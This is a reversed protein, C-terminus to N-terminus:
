SRHVVISWDISFLTCVSRRGGWGRRGGGELGGVGGEGWVGVGGEGWVGVGGEGWVRGAM